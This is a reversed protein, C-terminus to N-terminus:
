IHILSLDGAAGADSLGKGMSGATTHDAQAEDWVAGAIQEVTPPTGTYAGDTGRMATGLPATDRIAELSDTTEDYTGGGSNIESKATANAADKRIM